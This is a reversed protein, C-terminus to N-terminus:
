GQWKQQLQPHLCMEPEEYFLTNIYKKHKLILILPSLETVVASVIRLPIGSESGEPVYLVERNPMASMEIVGEAM